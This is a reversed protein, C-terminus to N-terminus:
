RRADSTTSVSFPRRVYSSALRTCAGHALARESSRAILSMSVVRRTTAASRFFSSSFSSRAEVHGSQPIDTQSHIARSFGGRSQFLRSVAPNSGTSAPGSRIALYRSGNARAIACSAYSRSSPVGSAMEGALVGRREVTPGRTTRFTYVLKPCTRRNTRALSGVMSAGIPFRMVSEAEATLSEWMVRPLPEM